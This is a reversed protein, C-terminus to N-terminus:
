HHQTSSNACAIEKEDSSPFFFSTPVGHLSCVKAVMARKAKDSLPLMNSLTECALLCAKFSEEKESGLLTTKERTCKCLRNKRENLEVIGKNLDCHAGGMGWEGKLTENICKGMDETSMAETSM